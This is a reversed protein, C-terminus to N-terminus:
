EDIKDKYDTIDLMAEGKRMNWQGEESKGDLFVRTIRVKYGINLDKALKFKIRTRYDSKKKFTVSEVLPKKPAPIAIEVIKAYLNEDLNELFDFCFIDIGTYGKIMRGGLDTQSFLSPYAAKDLKVPLTYSIPVNVKGWKNDKDKKVGALSQEIQVSILTQGAKVAKWLIQSITDDLPVIIKKQSWRTGQSWKVEQDSFLLKGDTKVVPMSRLKPYKINHEQSLKKKIKKTVKKERGSQIGINLVGKVWFKGSDSTGKRGMYRYIEFFYDPLNDSKTELVPMGPALYFLNSKQHDKYVRVGEIDQYHDLNPSAVATVASFFCIILVSFARM